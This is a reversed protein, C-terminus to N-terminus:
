KVDKLDILAAIEAIRARQQEIAAAFEEPTGGLVLQGSAEIRARIEPDRLVEAIDASIRDRLKTPMGRWGFFGALGDISMEPHGAESAIPVDPLTAARRTNTIAIVRAKGSQVPGITAQLSTILVQIRGEALDIPPAAVDRYPVYLMELKRRKLFAAFIFRPLSPGSGWLIKGPMDQAVRALDALSYVPLDRHVAVAIVTNAVPSISVFDRAPDFPVKEQILPNVTLASAFGYLLTHDDNANAFAGTGVSADAGARNEIVVPQGWRQRLGDGVLRAVADPASGTGIPVIIRVPRVPWAGNGDATSGTTVPAGALIISFLTARLLRM